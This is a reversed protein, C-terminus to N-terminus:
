GCNENEAPSDAKNASKGFNPEKDIERSSAVKMLVNFGNSLNSNIRQMSGMNGIMQISNIRSM